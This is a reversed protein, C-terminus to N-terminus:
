RVTRAKGNPLRPLPRRHWILEIHEGPALARWRRDVDDLAAAAPTPRGTRWAHWAAHVAHEASREFRVTMTYDGV